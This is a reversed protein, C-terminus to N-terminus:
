ARAYRNPRKDFTRKCDEECFYYTKGLYETKWEASAPDVEHGCIPDKAM